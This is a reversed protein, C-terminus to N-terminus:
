TKLLREVLFLMQEEFSSSETKKAAQIKTEKM